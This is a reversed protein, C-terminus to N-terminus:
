DFKGNRLDELTPHTRTPEDGGFADAFNEWHADVLSLAEDEPFKERVEKALEFL